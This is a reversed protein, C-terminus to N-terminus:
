LDSLLWAMRHWPKLNFNKRCDSKTVKEKELCTKRIGKLSAGRALQALPWVSVGLFGDKVCTRIM